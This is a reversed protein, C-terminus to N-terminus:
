LRKARLADYVPTSLRCKLAIDKLSNESLEALMNGEKDVIEFVVESESNVHHYLRVLPTSSLIAVRKKEVGVSYNKSLSCLVSVYMEERTGFAAGYFLFVALIGFSPNFGFFFSAVCLGMLALSLCVGAARLGKLAKMRNRCLGLVVRGGDLPYVPFLNFIGLTLNAYLFPLTYPYAAPFIWWLGVTMTALLLNALPGALGILVASTRDFSEELSMMAGYPLLVVSKVAYGRLRAMCGHAFEHLALALLTYAFNLAQGFATLVLALVFFLPHIRFKM